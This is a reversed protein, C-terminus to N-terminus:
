LFIKFQAFCIKELDTSLIRNTERIVGGDSYCGVNSQQIIALNVTFIIVSQPRMKSNDALYIDLFPQCCLLREWFPGHSMNCNNEVYHFM